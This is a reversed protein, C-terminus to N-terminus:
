SCQLILWVNDFNCQQLESKRIWFYLHGCDGFMFERDDTEITGMQFLPIWEKAKCRIDEKEEATVKEADEPSGQRFGRTVTECEEEM